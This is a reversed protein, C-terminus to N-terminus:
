AKTMICIQVVRGVDPIPANWLMMMLLKPKLKNFVWSNAIAIPEIMIIVISVATYKSRLYLCGKIMIIHEIGVYTSSLM